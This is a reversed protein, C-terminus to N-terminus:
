KRGGGEVVKKAAEVLAESAMAPTDVKGVYGDLVVKASGWVPLGALIRMVEPPNSFDLVNQIRIEFSNGEEVPSPTVKLAFEVKAGPYAMMEHLRAHNSLGKALDGLVLAVLEQGNLPLPDKSPTTAIPLPPPPTPPKEGVVQTPVALKPQSSSSSSSSNQNAM